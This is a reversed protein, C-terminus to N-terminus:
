LIEWQGIASRGGIVYPGGPSGSLVGGWYLGYCSLRGGIM